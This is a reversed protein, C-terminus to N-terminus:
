RSPGSHKKAALQQQAEQEQQEQDLHDSKRDKVQENVLSTRASRQAMTKVLKKPDNPALEPNEELGDVAMNSPDFDGLLNAFDQGQQQLGAATGGGGDSAALGAPPLVTNFEGVQQDTISQGDSQAGRKKAQQEASREKGSASGKSDGQKKAKEMERRMAAARRQRERRAAMIADYAADARIFKKMKDQAKRTEQSQEEQQGKQGKEKQESALDRGEPQEQQQEQEPQDFENMAILPPAAIMGLETQQTMDRMRAVLTEMGNEIKDLLQTITINGPQKWIDPMAEMEQRRREEEARLESALQLDGRQEAMLVDMELQELSQSMEQYHFMGLADAAENIEPSDALELDLRLANHLHRTYTEGVEKVGAMVEQIMPIDGAEMLAELTMDAFRIRLKDLIDRAIAIAEEKISIDLSDVSVEQPEDPPPPSAEEAQMGLSIPGATALASAYREEGEFVDFTPSGERDDMLQDPPLDPQPESVPESIQQAPMGAGLDQWWRRMRALPSLPAETSSHRETM